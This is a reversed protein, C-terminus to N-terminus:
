PKRFDRTEKETHGCGFVNYNGGPICAKRFDSVVYKDKLNLGVTGSFTINNDASTPTWFYYAGINPSVEVTRQGVINISFLLATIFILVKM